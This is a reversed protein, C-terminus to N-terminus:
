ELTAYRYEFECWALLFEGLSVRIPAEQFAPDNLLVMDETLGIVVVAHPTDRQWYSLNGTWLFIICPIGKSLLSRLKNASGEEYEVTLGLTALRSVNSSRTGLETTGLIRAIKSQELHRGLYALIMAVCAPLCTADDNQKRHPVPLYDDPM